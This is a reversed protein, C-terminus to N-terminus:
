SERQPGNRFMETLEQITMPNKAIREDTEKQWRVFDRAKEDDDIGYAVRVDEGRYMFEEIDTEQNEPENIPISRM